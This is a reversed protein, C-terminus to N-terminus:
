NDEGCLEGLRLAILCGLVKSVSFLVDWRQTKTGKTTFVIGQADVRMVSYVTLWGYNLRLPVPRRPRLVVHSKNIIKVAFNAFACLDIFVNTSNLWLVTLVLKRSGGHNRFECLYIGQWTGLNLKGNTIPVTVSSGVLSSKIHAPM